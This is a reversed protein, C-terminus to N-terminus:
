KFKGPYANKCKLNDHLFTKMFGADTGQYASITKALLLLGFYELLNFIAGYRELFICM